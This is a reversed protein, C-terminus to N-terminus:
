CAYKKSCYNIFNENIIKFNDSNHENELFVKMFIKFDFKIIIDSLFSILSNIYKEIFIVEESESLIEAFKYCYNILIRLFVEIFLRAIKSPSSVVCTTLCRKRDSMITVLEDYSKFFLSSELLFIKISMQYRIEM